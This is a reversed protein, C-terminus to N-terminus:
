VIIIVVGISYNYYLPLWFRDHRARTNGDIIKIARVWVVSIRLISSLDGDPSPNWCVCCKGPTYLFIHICTTINTRHLEILCLQTFIPHHCVKIVPIKVKSMPFVLEGGLTPDTLQLFLGFLHRLLASLRICTYREYNICNSKIYYMYKCIHYFKGCSPKSGLLYRTFALLSFYKEHIKM